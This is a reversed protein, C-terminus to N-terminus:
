LYQMNISIRVSSMPILYAYFVYLCAYGEEMNERSERPVKSAVPIGRFFTNARFRSMDIDYKIRHKNGENMEVLQEM